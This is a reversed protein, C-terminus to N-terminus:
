LNFGCKTKVYGRCCCCGIGQPEEQSKGTGEQELEGIAELEYYEIYTM